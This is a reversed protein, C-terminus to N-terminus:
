IHCSLPKIETYDGFSGEVSNYFLATRRNYV